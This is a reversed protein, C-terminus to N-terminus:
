AEYLLSIKDILQQALIVKSTKELHSEGNAWFLFLENDNQDFGLNEGEASIGVWNAALLHVGKNALKQKAHTQLDNTEAAFAVCFPRNNNQKSIDAVHKVIDPNKILKLELNQEKKKIKKALIKEPRYDAVAACAIFIDIKEINDLVQKLMQQATQVAYFHCDPPPLQTPGSILSVEAGSNIAAQAIAYGMKGSSRNSIFRVPDIEEITPGATIMVKLPKANQKHLLKATRKIQNALLTKVIDEAESMRGLGIDGCAQEGSAPGILIVNYRALQKINQQTAASHWMQQNMAPAIFKKASSALWITTLLNDAFGHTIKAIIDASAPAILFIDAWRALEIHSMGAEAHTDFTKIRVPHGSLSQFTIPSIFQTANETMVVRVNAGKKILLRIMDCSKYAAIGASIGILINCNSLSNMGSMM